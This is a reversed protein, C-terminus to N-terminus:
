FNTFSMLKGAAPLPSLRLQKNAAAAAAQHQFLLHQDLPPPVPSLPSGQPMPIPASLANPKMQPFLNNAAGMPPMSQQQKNFMNASNGNANNNANFINLASTIIDREIPSLNPAAIRQWLTYPSIEGSSLDLILSFTLNLPTFTFDRKGQVIAQVEPRSMVEPMPMKQQQMFKMMDINNGFQQQPMMHPAVPNPSGVPNMMKGSMKGTIPFGKQQHQQQQQKQMMIEASHTMMQQLFNQGNPTMQAPMKDENAIQSLLKKFANVDEQNQPAQQPPQQQQQQQQQMLNPMLQQQFFNQLAKHENENNKRENQEDMVKHQRLRAELEEVSHVQGSNPSKQQQKQQQQHIMHMLPNDESQTDPTPGGKLLQFLSNSEVKDIPQFYKESEVSQPFAANGGDNNNNQLDPIKESKDDDKSVNFWKSFRSSEREDTMKEPLLNSMNLNNFMDDLHDTIDDPLNKLDNQASNRMKLENANVENVKSEDNMKSKENNNAEDSPSKKEEDSKEKKKDDDQSMDINKRARLDASTIVRSPDSLVNKNSMMQVSSEQNEYKSNYAKKLFRINSGNSNNGANAGTTKYIIRSSGGGSGGDDYKNYKNYYYRSNGYGDGGDGRGDGRGDRGDRADRADRGERNEQFRKQYSLNSSSSSNSHFSLPSISEEGRNQM